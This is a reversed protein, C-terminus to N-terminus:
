LKFYLISKMEKVRLKLAGETQYLYVFGCKCFEKEIHDESHEMNQTVYVLIDM